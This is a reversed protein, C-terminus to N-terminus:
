IMALLAAFVRHFIQFITSAYDTCSRIPPSMNRNILVQMGVCIMVFRSANWHALTGLNWVNCIRYVSIEQSYM